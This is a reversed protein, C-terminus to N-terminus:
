RVKRLAARVAADEAPTNVSMLRSPDRPVAVAPGLRELLARLSLGKPRRPASDAGDPPSAAEGGAEGARSGTEATAARLAALASPEYVACLPELTGDPHRFVAAPRGAQRAAVLAALTEADVLPLDAALVLWAAEPALAHAALLGSAPGRSDADVVAPLGAFAELGVQDARLSVYVRSCFRGLLGFAWRAQPMGHYDLSGKDRGLRVGRGGALVLGHLPARGPQDGALPEFGTM